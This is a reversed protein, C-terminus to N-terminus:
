VETTTGNKLAKGITIMWVISNLGIMSGVVALSIVLAKWLAVGLLVGVMSGVILGVISYPVLSMLYKMRKTKINGLLNLMIM